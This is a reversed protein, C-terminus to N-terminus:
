HRRMWLVIVTLSSESMWRYLPQGHRSLDCLTPHLPGALRLTVYRHSISSWPCALPVTERHAACYADLMVPMRPMWDLCPRDRYPCRRPGMFMTSETTDHGAHHRRNLGNSQELDEVGGGCEAASAVLCLQLSKTAQHLLTPGRYEQRRHTTSQHRHGCGLM